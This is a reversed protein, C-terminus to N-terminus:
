EIELYFSRGAIKIQRSRRSRTEPTEARFDLPNSIREIAVGMNKKVPM